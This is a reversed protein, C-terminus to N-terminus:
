GTCQVALLKVHFTLSVIRQPTKLVPKIIIALNQYLPYACVHAQAHLYMWIILRGLGDTPAGLSFHPAHELITGDEGPELRAYRFGIDFSGDIVSGELFKEDTKVCLGALAIEYRASKDM